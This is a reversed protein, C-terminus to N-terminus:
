PSWQADTYGHPVRGRALRPRPMPASAGSNATLYVYIGARDQPAPMWEAGVIGVIERLEGPVDVDAPVVAPPIYVVLRVDLREVMLPPVGIAQLRETVRRKAELPSLM